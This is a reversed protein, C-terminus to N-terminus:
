TRGARRELRGGEKARRDDEILMTVGLKPLRYGSRVHSPQAVEPVSVEDHKVAVKCVARELKQPVGPERAIQVPALDAEHRGLGLDVPM